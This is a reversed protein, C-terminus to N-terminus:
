TLRDQNFSERSSIRGTFDAQDTTATFAAIATALVVFKMTRLSAALPPPALM